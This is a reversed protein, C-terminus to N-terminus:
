VNRRQGSRLQSVYSESIGLEAAIDRSRKFSRRVYDITLDDLKCNGHREGAAQRNKAVMDAMNSSQDGLFLHGPNVCPRVDCSHLVHAGAPIDGFHIRYSARHAAVVADGDWFDGYGKEDVAALWLWCGCNPEPIYKEHFAAIRHPKM